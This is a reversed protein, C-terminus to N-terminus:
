EKTLTTTEMQEVAKVTFKLGSTEANYYKSPIEVYRSSGPTTSGSGGHTGGGIKARVEPPLNLPVDPAPGRTRPALERNDVGVSVEGYPLSVSFRGQEDLEATIANAGPDAPRFMVRGGPLPKGDFLVQGSVRGISPGCGSAIFFVGLLVIMKARNLDNLPNM